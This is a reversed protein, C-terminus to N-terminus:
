SIKGEERLIEETIQVLEYVMDDCHPKKPLGKDANIHLLDKCDLCGEHNERVRRYVKQLISLDNVGFLGLTMIAGTVAGCVSGMKMGGGFNVGANYLIEPDVGLEEAFPLVVGQNCNYHIDTRARLEKSKDLYKSM